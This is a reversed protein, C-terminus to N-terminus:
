GYPASAEIVEAGTVAVLDAVRLRVNIGRRGASVLIEELEQAAADIYIAFDRDLLALPSIGGVQLRTKREAEQQTAMRVKKVELARALRSLDLERDGPIIVLFPQEEPSMVVLTKYVMPIPLGVAEAVGQASHISPSFTYTEYPIGQRDLLRMANTKKSSV